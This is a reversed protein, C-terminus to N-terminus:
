TFVLKLIKLYCVHISGHVQNYGLTSVPSHQLFVKVLVAEFVHHPLYNLQLTFSCTMIKVSCSACQDVYITHV